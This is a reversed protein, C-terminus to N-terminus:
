KRTTPSYIDFRVRQGKISYAPPEILWNGKPPRKVVVRLRARQRACSFLDEIGALDSGVRRLLQMQKRPLAQKGSAEFMPDLYIVDFLLGPQSSLWQLGDALILKPLETVGAIRARELGDEALEYVLPARELATVPHGLAAVLMADGALGATADLVTLLSKQRGQIAKVVLESRARLLRKASGVQLFDTEVVYQNGSQDKSLAQLKGDFYRLTVLGEAVKWSDAASSKEVVPLGLRQALLRAREPAEGLEVQISVAATELNLTRESM